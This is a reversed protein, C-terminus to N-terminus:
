DGTLRDSGRRYGSRKKPASRPLPNRGAGTVRSGIWKTQFAELYDNIEQLLEQPIEGVQSAEDASELLEVLRDDLDFLSRPDREAKFVVRSRLAEVTDALRARIGSPIGGDTTEQRAQNLLGTLRDGIDFVCQPSAVVIPENTAM